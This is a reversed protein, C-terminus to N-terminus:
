KMMVHRWAFQNDARQKLDVKDNVGWALGQQHLPIYAIEGITMAYAEEIMVNRKAQDTESLIKVTLADVKPNCYGGINFKGNSIKDRDEKKWVPGDDSLRACGHLNYLVNWSDFSGPTWGL